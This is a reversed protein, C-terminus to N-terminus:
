LRYNRALPALKKRSESGHWGFRILRDRFQQTGGLGAVGGCGLPQQSDHVLLQVPQGAGAHGVKGGALGQLRRGQDM